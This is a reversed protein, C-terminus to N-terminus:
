HHDNSSGASLGKGQNCFRFEDTNELHLSIFLFVTETATKYSFYHLLSIFYLTEYSRTHLHFPQKSIKGTHYMWFTIIIYKIASLRWDLILSVNYKMEHNLIVSQHWIWLKPTRYQIINSSNVTRSTLIIWLRNEGGGGELNLKSKKIFAFIASTWLFKYSSPIFVFIVGCTHNVWIFKNM